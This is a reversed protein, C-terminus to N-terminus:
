SIKNILRNKLIIKQQLRHSHQDIHKSKKVKNLGMINYCIQM